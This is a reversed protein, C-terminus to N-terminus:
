FTIFNLSSVKAFKEPLKKFRTKMSGYDCKASVFSSCDEYKELPEIQTNNIEGSKNSIIKSIIFHDNRIKTSKITSYVDQQGNLKEKLFSSYFCTQYLLIAGFCLCIFHYQLKM